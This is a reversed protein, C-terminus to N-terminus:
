HHQCSVRPIQLNSSIGSIQFILHNRKKPAKLLFDERQCLLHFSNGLSQNRRSKGSKVNNCSKFVINFCVCLMFSSLAFLTQNILSLGNMLQTRWSARIVSRSIYWHSVNMRRFKFYSWIPTKKHLDISRNMENKFLKLSAHWAFTTLMM